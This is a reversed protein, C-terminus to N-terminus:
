VAARSLRISLSRLIEDIRDLEQKKIRSRFQLEAMYNQLQGRTFSVSDLKMLELDTMDPYAKKFM